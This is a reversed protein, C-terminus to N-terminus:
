HPQVTNQVSKWFGQVKKKQDNASNVAQTAKDLTGNSGTAVAQTGAAPVNASGRAPIIEAPQSADVQTIPVGQIRNGGNVLSISTYRQDLNDYEMIFRVPKPGIYANPFMKHYLTRSNL